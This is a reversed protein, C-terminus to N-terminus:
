TSPNYYSLQNILFFIKMRKKQHSNIAKVKRLTTQYITYGPWRKM